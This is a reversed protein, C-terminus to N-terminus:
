RTVYLACCHRKQTVRAYCLGLQLKKARRLLYVHNDNMSAPRWRSFIIVTCLMFFRQFFFFLVSLLLPLAAPSAHFLSYTVNINLSRTIDDLINEVASKILLWTIEISIPVRNKYRFQGSNIFFMRSKREKELLIGVIM